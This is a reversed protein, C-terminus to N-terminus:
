RTNTKLCFTQLLIKIEQFQEPVLSEQLTLSKVSSVIHKRTNVYPCKNALIALIFGYLTTTKHV